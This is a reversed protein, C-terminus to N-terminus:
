PVLDIGCMVARASGWDEEIAVVDLIDLDIFTVHPGADVIGVVHPPTVECDEAPLAAAGRGGVICM